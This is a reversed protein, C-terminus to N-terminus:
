RSLDHSEDGFALLWIDAETVRRTFFIRPGDKTVRPPGIVDRSVSFVEEPKSGDIATIFFSKGGSVFLLRQSDPLWVPWEGFDTLRRYSSSVFSYLVLGSNNFGAQGALM